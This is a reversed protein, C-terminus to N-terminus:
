LGSGAPSPPPAGEAYRLYGPYAQALLAFGRAVAQLAAATAADETACALRALGPSFLCETVRGRGAKEAARCAASFTYCLVSAGACILDQGAPASGAHGEVTLRGSKPEFRVRIM